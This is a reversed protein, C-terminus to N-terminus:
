ARHRREFIDMSHHISKLAEAPKSWGKFKIQKGTGYVSAVFFREIQLRLRDPIKRASESEADERHPCLVYRDNEVTAGHETQAVRLAGLLICKIVVGPASTAEHIVLGDLPDGDEGLTSPVFGWDYPYTIGVPLPYAYEFVKRRPRFALKAASGRPTEVVVRILDKSTIAPLILYNPM